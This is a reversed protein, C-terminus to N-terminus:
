WGRHLAIYTAMYVDAYRPRRIMALVGRPVSYGRGLPSMADDITSDDWKSFKESAAFFRRSFIINRDIWRQYSSLDGRAVSAAAKRGSLLAAGIGGYCLPNVLCAADGVLCCNGSVANDPRGTALFRIGREEYDDQDDLGKIYGISMYGDASPFEWRYTGEYRESVIFRITHGDCDRRVINNVAPVARGPKTGFVYKRVASFAGDAGILYRCRYDKGSCTVVFGDCDRRVATVSGGIFESTCSSRLEELLRIRDVIAGKVPVRVSIGSVADMELTDIDRVVSGRSVGSADLLRYSIAEGCTRHYHGYREGQMREIVAVDDIGLRGLESAASLGALGAGVILAEYEEM